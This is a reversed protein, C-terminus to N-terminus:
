PRRQMAERCHALAFALAESPAVLGDLVARRTARIAEGVWPGQPVGHALLLAGNVPVSRRLWDTMAQRLVKRQSATGVALALIWWAKPARELAEVLESPRAPRAALKLIKEVGERAEAVARFHAGALNLRRALLGGAGEGGRLALAALFVLQTPGEWVGELTSWVLMAEVQRLLKISAPAWSLEPFLARSVGLRDLEVLAEVPHEEGLCAFIEERLREGSLNRFADEEAAVRALRETDPALTFGLRLAFRVARVVRTPDEIFSLSHLVRILKLEMDREGGFFDVLQGFNEPNLAIAMANITFDRRYLDQRLASREVEPLAAPYPYFETRATAVDLRLGSPFILVSTLFPEHVHIRAKRLSALAKALEVGNGEVVVDLDEGPRGLLVDRVAGGVLYARMGLSAATGGVEKLLALQAEGLSQRLRTLVSQVVPKGSVLRHSVLTTASVQREYLRRFLDMRTIVGYGGPREVLVLREREEVFVRQLEELPTGAPVVRVSPRMVSAVPRAGLNHAVANDLIQRTVVGVPRGEEMVPMANIRLRVLRDKAQKVSTHTEVSFVTASALDGATPPLGLRIELAQLLTEGVEVASRGKLRAAAATAHGGGGLLSLLEGAHVRPHSSRCIVVLQPPAELVAIVVPLDFIEAYRHVVYAAEEVQESLRAMTVVVRVGGLNHEMAGAVLTNLLELQAPELPRLVYTRVWDLRAGQSLLWAVAQADATRTDQYTLGGTDEYIGLLLLSATLPDPKLGRRQLEWAVVTCTAGAGEPPGSLFSAGPIPDEPMPHHDVVTVPCRARQIMEGVEGLRKLSSCDAVWAAEMTARRLEKLRTEPLPLRERQLFRRVGAEQSGSFVIRGHPELCLLGAMAGLADFDAGLHTTIIRMLKLTAPVKKEWSTASSM